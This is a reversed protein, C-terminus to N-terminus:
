LGKVKTSRSTMYRLITSIVMGQDCKEQQIVNLDPQLTLLPNKAQTSLLELPFFSLFEKKLRVASCVRVVITVQSFRCTLLSTANMIKFITHMTVNLCHIHIDFIRFVYKILTFSDVSHSQREYEDTIDPGHARASSVQRLGKTSVPRRTMM